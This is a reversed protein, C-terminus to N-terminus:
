IMLNLIVDIYAIDLIILIHNMSNISGKYKQPGENISKHGLKKLNDKLSELDSVVFIFKNIFNYINYYNYNSRVIFKIKEPELNSIYKFIDKFNKKKIVNSIINSIELKNKIILKGDV